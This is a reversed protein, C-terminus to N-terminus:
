RPYSKRLLSIAITATRKPAGKSGLLKRVIQLQNEYNVLHDLMDLAKNSIKEPTADDQLLEPMIEKNVILNALGAYKIKVFLKAIRYSITSMRYIIITPVCCLAAELTVTGSAAIVLDSKLFIDKVPGNDIQFLSDKGSKKLITKIIEKKISSAQSIIFSAQRNEQHILDAAKIMINFLNKIEAKRSGPLLGITVSGKNKSLLHTSRLFPKSVTEPYEDMLPNGVYTSPICAKKYIKEEFPLILAAHDVYKKIKKLRSKKWAWVKPTIYYLIKINYHDKTFQAAKLNFGPYDVLIMLDPTNERLKEKFLDFAKKIQGFQMLVETIGMASLNSINYFLDVKQNELHIGGIGSFYISTNLQKIEKVLHGAHLDGSLEGTLIMIHKFKAPLNM